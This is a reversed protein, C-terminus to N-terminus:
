HLSCTWRCLSTSTAAQTLASSIIFSALAPSFTEGQTGEDNKETKTPTARSVRAFSSVCTNNGQALSALKRPATGNVDRRTDVLSNLIHVDTLPCSYEVINRHQEEREQIAASQHLPVTPFRLVSAITTEQKLNMFLNHNGHRSAQELKNHRRQKQKKEGRRDRDRQQQWPTGHPCCNSM